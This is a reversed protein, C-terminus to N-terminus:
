KKPPTTVEPTKAPVTGGLKLIVKNTLDFEETAYLVIPFGSIQSSFVHTYNEAKAIEDIAKQVKAYVPDTLTQSKRQLDEQAKKEFETINQQSTQLEKEKVERIAPPYSDAKAVYDKYDKEFKDRMSKMQAELQGQYSKLESEIVKAEPLAKVIDEASTYGIKMPTQAMAIDAMLTLCVILAGIIKKKM